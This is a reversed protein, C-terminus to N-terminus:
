RKADRPDTQDPSIRAVSLLPMGLDRVKRLIGHLAAQDVVPGTLLTDGNEQPTITMGDFWDAWQSGLHGQIRIQYLLPFNPEARNRSEHSM